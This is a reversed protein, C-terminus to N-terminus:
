STNQLKRKHPRGDEIYAYQQPRQAQARTDKKERQRTRGDTRRDSQSVSQSFTQEGNQLQQASPSRNMHGRGVRDITQATRIISKYNFM